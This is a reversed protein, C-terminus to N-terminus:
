IIHMQSVHSSSEPARSLLQRVKVARTAQLRCGLVVHIGCLPYRSVRSGQANGDSFQQKSRSTTSPHGCYRECRTRRLPHKRAGACLQRQSCSVSHMSTSYGVRQPKWHGQVPSSRCCFCRLRASEHCRNSRRQVRSCLMCAVRTFLGSTSEITKDHEPPKIPVPEPASNLRHTAYAQFQSLTVHGIRVRIKTQPRTGHAAM